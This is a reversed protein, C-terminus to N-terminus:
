DTATLWEFKWVPNGCSRCQEGNELVTGRCQHCDPIAPLQQIQEARGKAAAQRDGFALNTAIEIGLPLLRFLVLPVCRSTPLVRCLVDSFALRRANSGQSVYRRARQSVAALDAAEGLRLRLLWQWFWDDDGRLFHHRKAAAASEVVQYIEIEVRTQKAARSESLPIMMSDTGAITLTDEHVRTFLIDRLLGLGGNLSALVQAGDSRQEHQNFGDIAEAYGKLSEQQAMVLRREARLAAGTLTLRVDGLQVMGGVGRGEINGM